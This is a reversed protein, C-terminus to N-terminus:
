MFVFISEDYIVRVLSQRRRRCSGQKTGRLSYHLINRLSKETKISTYRLIKRIIRKKKPCTYITVYCSVSSARCLVSLRAGSPSQDSSFHEQARGIQMPPTPSRTKKYNERMPIVIHSTVSYNSPRSAACAGLALIRLPCERTRTSLNDIRTSSSWRTGLGFRGPYEVIIPQALVCGAGRRHGSAEPCTIM